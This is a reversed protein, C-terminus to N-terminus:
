HNEQLQATKRLTTANSDEAARIREKTEALEEGLRTSRRKRVEILLQPYTDPNTELERKPSFAENGSSQKASAM